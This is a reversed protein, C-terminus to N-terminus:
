GDTPIVIRDASPDYRINVGLDRLQTFSLYEDSSATRVREAKAADQGEILSAVQGRNAFIQAAGDIRIALKGGSSGGIAVPKDVAIARSSQAGGQLDFDIKLMGDRGPKPIPKAEPRAATRVPESGFAREFAGPDPNLIDLAPPTTGNEDAQALADSVLEVNEGLLVPPPRNAITVLAEPLILRVPYGDPDAQMARTRIITDTILGALALGILGFTFVALGRGAPDRVEEDDDIDRSTARSLM